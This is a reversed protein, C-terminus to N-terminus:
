AVQVSLVAGDSTAVYLTDRDKDTRGLVCTTASSATAVKETTGDPAVKVVAGGNIMAVYASGDAALAFDEPGQLDRRIVAVQAVGGDTSTAPKGTAPDVALRDFTGGFANTFYLAGDRYKVGHIGERIAASAPARMTTADALVVAYAGTSLTLTYLAGTGADAVFVTDNDLSAAGLLFAGEPIRQVLAATPPTASPASLDVRYVAYSGEGIDFTKTSFNGAVVAFVDPAVEAVGTLGLVGPISLVKSAEQTAPNVTWLEPVDLRNLLLHGNSRATMTEVWGGLQAIQTADQRPRILAASTVFPEYLSLVWALPLVRM